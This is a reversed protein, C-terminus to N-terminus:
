VGGGLLGSSGQIIGLGNGTAGYPNAYQQGASFLGSLNGLLANLNGGGGLAGAGAGLVGNVAGGIANASGLIGSGTAQGAGVLDNGQLGAAQLGLSGLTSAANQGNGAISSLGSTLGGFAGSLQSLYQNFNQNALGQGTSQLAKLANGGLGGNAAASNTVAQTGQQLAYQYGPSAQFTAPNIGGGPTGGPGLGLMQLIPNTAGGATGPGINYLKQLASLANTGAGLFPQLNNSTQDFSNGALTAAQNFANSEASAAAGAAQSGIVGNAISGAAAAAAFGFPMDSVGARHAM